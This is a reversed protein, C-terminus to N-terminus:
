EEWPNIIPIGCHKFDETNRTAVAARRSRCISAIMADFQSIPRGMAERAAVIKPFVRASDEDFSLIRGRFENAFLSEIAGSLRLRRKGATLVEVGYLVEAQTITTTFVSLPEQSALWRLVVECPAPRLAESLVNTDLVIM